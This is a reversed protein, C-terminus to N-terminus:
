SRVVDRLVCWRVFRQAVQEALGGALPEVRRDGETRYWPCAGWGKRGVASDLALSAAGLASASAGSHRVVLPIQARDALLQCVGAVNALGGAVVLESRAGLIGASRAADILESLSFVVHELAASVLGSLEDGVGECRMEGSDGSADGFSGTRAACYMVGNHESGAAWHHALEEFSLRRGVRVALWELVDGVISTRLEQEYRIRRAGTESESSCLVGRGVGPVALPVTESAVTVTALTGLDLVARERQSSGEDGGSLLYVAAAEKDGLSALVPIGESVVGRDSVSPLIQPLRKEDVSWVACLDPSWGQAKLDYLLTRAAMSDDTFFRDYGVLQSLLYSDLTAVRCSQDLFRRQMMALKSAAFFRNPILGSREAIRAVTDANALIRDCESRTRGDRWSLVRSVARGQADWAVVGSRQVALGIGKARHGRDRCVGIGWSIALKVSSVIEEPEHEVLDDSENETVSTRIPWAQEGIGGGEASLVVAKTSSSGQDIGIAAAATTRDSM